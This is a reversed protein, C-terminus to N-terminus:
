SGSFSTENINVWLPSASWCANLKNNILSAVSAGHGLYALARHSVTNVPRGALSPTSGSRPTHATSWSSLNTSSPLPAHAEHPLALTSRGCCRPPQFGGQITQLFALVWTSTRTQLACVYLQKMIPTSNRAPDITRLSFSIYKSSNWLTVQNCFVHNM